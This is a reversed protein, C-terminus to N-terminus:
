KLKKLLLDEMILYGDVNPHIGDPALNRPFGGGKDALATWYDVLPYKKAKAYETIRRNLEKVQEVVATVEPRWPIGDAPTATCLVPKIGNAKAIECMAKINGIIDDMTSYGTNLAIDNVGALIVVYKPKLAVVDQRFRLLMQATCEGSIGRGQLNNETFFVDHKQAWGDTISDGMLVAKPRKSAKAAEANAGAYRYKHAWEASSITQASLPLMSALLTAILIIRKM